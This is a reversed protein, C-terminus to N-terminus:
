YIETVSLKTVGDVPAKTNDDKEESIITDDSPSTPIPTPIPSRLEADSSDKANDGDSAKDDEDAPDNLAPVVGVQSNGNRNGFSLLDPFFREIVIMGTILCFICVATIAIIYFTRISSKEPENDYDEDTVNGFGDACVGEETFDNEDEDFSIDNGTHAPMDSDTVIEPEIIYGSNDDM